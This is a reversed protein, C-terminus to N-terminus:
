RQMTAQKESKIWSLVSRLGDISHVLASQLRDAYEYASGYGGCKADVMAKQLSPTIKTGDGAIAEFVQLKAKEKKFFLSSMVSASTGLLATLDVIQYAVADGNDRETDRDLVERISHCLQWEDMCDTPWYLPAKPPVLQLVPAASM